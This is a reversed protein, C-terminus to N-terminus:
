PDLSTHKGLGAPSWLHSPLQEDFAIPDTCGTPPRRSRGTHRARRQVGLIRDLGGEHQAKGAVDLPRLLRCWCSWKLITTSPALSM